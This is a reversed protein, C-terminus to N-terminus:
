DQLDMTKIVMSNPDGNKDLLFLGNISLRCKKPNDKTRICYDSEGKTIYIEDGIRTGEHRIQKGNTFDIEIWEVDYVTWMNPYSAKQYPNNEGPWIPHAELGGLIGTSTNNWVGEAEPSSSKIYYVPGDSEIRHNTEDKLKKIHEPKLYEFYELIIDETSLYRRVVARYSDALYNSNPNKEVFSNIPNLYELQVNDKGSTPKVRYYCTGTICLDLLLDRITNKLNINRSQRFYRLLNHAAIEFQSTYSSTIDDKIKNLREEIFPDNVAEKDNVIAAIINNQLHKKLYNFQAEVIKLQKDRMIASVTEQDKCSVNLEQNLGLYEGILRDIHPRVLPNFTIGTPVGIGYNQEIHKFQDADRKYHYYNYAKQLATKSYVLENIAKDIKRIEDDVNM